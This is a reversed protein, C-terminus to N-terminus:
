VLSSRSKKGSDRGDGGGGNALKGTRDATPDGYGQEAETRRLPNEPASASVM